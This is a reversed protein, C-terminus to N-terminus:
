ITRLISHATPPFTNFPRRRLRSQPGGGVSSLSVHLMSFLTDLSCSAGVNEVSATDGRPWTGPAHQGNDRAGEAVLASEFSCRVAPSTGRAGRLRTDQHLSKHLHRLCHGNSSRQRLASM